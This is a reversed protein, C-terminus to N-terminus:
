CTTARQQRLHAQGRAPGGEERLGGRPHRRLQGDARLLQGGRRPRDPGQGAFRCLRLLLLRDAAGAARLQHLQRLLARPGAPGDGARFGRRRLDAQRREARRRLQRARRHRPHQERGDDGDAAEPRPERRGQSLLRLLADGARGSLRGARGEGHRRQDGGPHLDGPAGREEGRERVLLRPLLQLAMDKFALTPGHWLELAHTNEGCDVLKAIEPCDFGAGYAGHVAQQLEERSFDPLFRSLVFCARAEYDMGALGAIEDQTFAPFSEPVYLGGDPALGRLIAMSPTVAAAGRTSRMMMM